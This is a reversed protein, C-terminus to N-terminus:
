IVYHRRFSLAVLLSACHRDMSVSGNLSPCKFCKWCYIRDYPSRLGLRDSPESGFGIIVTHFNSPSTATKYSPPIKCRVFTLDHWTGFRESDWSPPSWRPCESSPVFDDPAKVEIFQFKWDNPIILGIIWM